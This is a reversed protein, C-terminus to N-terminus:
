KDFSDMESATGKCLLLSLPEEGQRVEDSGYPRANCTRRNETICCQPRAISWLKEKSCRLM